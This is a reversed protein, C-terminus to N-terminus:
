YSGTNVGGSVNPATAVQTGPTLPTAVPPVEVTTTVPASTASTSSSATGACNLANEKAKLADSVKVADDTSAGAQVLRIEDAQIAALQDGYTPCALVNIEALLSDVTVPPLQSAPGTAADGGLGECAIGNHNADLGDVNNTPSGGHALFFAQADPQTAFDSCNKDTVPTASTSTTTSAPTGTCLLGSQRNQESTLDNKATTQKAKADALAARAKDIATQDAPLTGSTLNGIAATLDAVTTLGPLAALQLGALTATPPTGAPVQGLVAQLTALTGSDTSQKGVANNFATQALKVTATATDVAAQDQKVSSTNNVLTACEPTAPAPPATVAQAFANGAGLGLALVVFAVFAAARRSIPM